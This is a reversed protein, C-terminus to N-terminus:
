AFVCICSVPGQTPLWPASVRIHLSANCFPAGEPIYVRYFAGEEAFREVDVQVEQDFLVAPLTPSAPTPIETWTDQCLTQDCLAACASQNRPVSGCSNISAYNCPPCAGQDVACLSPPVGPCPTFDLLHLEQDFTAEFQALEVDVTGWTATKTAYEYSTVAPAAACTTVLAAILAALVARM